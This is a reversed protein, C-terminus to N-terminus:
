EGDGGEDSFVPTYEEDGPDGDEDKPSDDDPKEDETADDAREARRLAAEETLRLFLDELNVSSVNMGYIKLGAAVYRDFLAERLDHGKETEIVTLTREGKPYFRVGTVGALGELVDGVEKETGTSEISVTTGERAGELEDVTGAAVVEGEAIIIIYDCLATIEGMIHSSLVVTHDEKLSSILHRIEIIQRPDLGVTPEDLIINEPDGVLAAAIGVRQRYGKSLHRILRNEVPTVGCLEAVREAEGKADDVKKARAVFRLFERPTMDPYLPPIEPLYGIASKAAAADSYIDHGDVSVDGSTAALCGTMINMTTSKGAGNPGLLGYIHGRELTFSVGHLARFAGYDKVLDKVEIM